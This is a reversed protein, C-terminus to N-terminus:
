LNVCRRPAGDVFGRINDATQDIIRTRAEVSGWACHPTVILNPLSQDLLPNGDRPPEQSLVDVAAGGLHGSKLADVLAQENVIGGRAANVLFSGPKMRALAQADILDRTQETLPCHLSLVDARELVQEFAVRGAPVAASGPRAAILVSMGLAEARRAVAAGLAGYGVIGLTRGSVEIIPYDLLCFQSARGWDGARVARDYDLLRTHLALILMIVHQAVSSVGYGQSNCVPIGRRRAAELDVNNVGTAVVCILKLAHANAIVDAALPVKNVLVLDFGDIRAAVEDAATQPYCVLEDVLNEIPSLDLDDLSELDLFVARM